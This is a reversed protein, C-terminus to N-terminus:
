ELPKSETSPVHSVLKPYVHVGLSEIGIKHPDGEPLTSSLYLHESSVVSQTFISHVSNTNKVPLRSSKYFYSNPLM